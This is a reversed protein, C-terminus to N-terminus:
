PCAWEAAAVAGVCSAGMGDHMLGQAQEFSGDMGHPCARPQAILCRGVPDLEEESRPPMDTLAEKAADFNKLVYEVAAQQLDLLLSM